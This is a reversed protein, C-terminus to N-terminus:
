HNVEYINARVRRRESATTRNPRNILNVLLMARAHEEVDRPVDEPLVIAAADLARLLADGDRDSDLVTALSEGCLISGQLRDQEESWWNEFVEIVALNQDRAKNM